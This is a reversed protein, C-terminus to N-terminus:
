GSVTEMETSSRLLEVKPSLTISPASAISTVLVVPPTSVIALVNLAVDFDLLDNDVFPPYSM